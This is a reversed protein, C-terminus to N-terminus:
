VMFVSSIWLPRICWIAATSNPTASSCVKPALNKSVRACRWGCCAPRNWKSPSTSTTNPKQAKTSIAQMASTAPLPGAMAYASDRWNVSGSNTQTTITTAAERGTSSTTPRLM